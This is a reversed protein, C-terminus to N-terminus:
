QLIGNHSYITSKSQAEWSQTLPVDADQGFCKLAGVKLEM